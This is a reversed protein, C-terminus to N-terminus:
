YRAQLTLNFGLQNAQNFTRISTGDFNKVLHTQNADYQYYVQLIAAFWEMFDERVEAKFAAIPFERKGTPLISFDGENRVVITSQTAITGGTNGSLPGM